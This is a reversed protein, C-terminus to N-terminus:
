DKMWVQKLHGNADFSSRDAVYLTLALSLTSVTVTAAIIIVTFVISKVPSIGGILQGFTLEPLLFLGIVAMNVFMPSFAKEVAKRVFPLVAEKHTAGNGLLLEYLQLGGQLSSYYTKLATTEVTQAGFLLLGAVPVIWQASLPRQSQFVLFLLYLGVIVVALFQGILLPLVMTRRRLRSRGCIAVASVLSMLLLWLVDLAVSDCKFLWHMYFGVLALQAVMRGLGVVAKPLMKPCVRVLFYCPIALLLVAFVVGWVSIGLFQQM